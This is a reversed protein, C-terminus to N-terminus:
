RRRHHEYCGLASVGTRIAHMPPCDKPLNTLLDIVGQPLERYGSLVAKLDALEKANPLHNHYLAGSRRLDGQRGVRQHRLRL